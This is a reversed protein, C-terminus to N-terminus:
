PRPPTGLASSAYVWSNKPQMHPAVYFTYDQADATGPTMAHQAAHGDLFAFGCREEGHWWKGFVGTRMQRACRGVVFPGLDGVLVFRSHDTVAAPSAGTTRNFNPAGPTMGPAGPKMWIWENARYSVGLQGFITDEKDSIEANSEGAFSYRMATPSGFYICGTDKPCIFVEARAKENLESGIYPNVPRQPSLGNQWVVRSYQDVGGWDFPGRPPLATHDITYLTWAHAIQRLNSLCRTDQAASRAARLAPLLVGTLAAIVAVAVLLEVISFGRGGRRTGSDRGLTPPGGITGSGDGNM